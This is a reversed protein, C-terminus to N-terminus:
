SQAIKPPHVENSQAGPGVSFIIPKEVKPDNITKALDGPSELQASTWPENGNNQKLLSFSSVTSAFFVIACLFLFPKYM